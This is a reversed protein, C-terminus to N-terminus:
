HQTRDEEEDGGPHTPFPMAAALGAVPASPKGPACEIKNLRLFNIAAAIDAASAEAVVEMEIEGRKIIETRGDKVIKTLKRAVADHLEQLAETTAAKSM